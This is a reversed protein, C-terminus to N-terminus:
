GCTDCVGTQPLAMFCTPCIALEAEAQSGRSGGGTGDGLRNYPMEYTDYGGEPRRVEAFGVSFYASASDGRRAAVAIYSRSSPIWIESFELTGAIERMRPRNEMPAHFAEMASEFSSFVERRSGDLVKQCSKCVALTAVQEATAPVLSALGDATLHQCETTHLVTSGPTVHLLLEDDPTTTVCATHRTLRQRHGAVSAHPVLPQISITM